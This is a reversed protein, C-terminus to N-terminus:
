TTEPYLIQRVGIACATGIFIAPASVFLALLLGGFILSRVMGQNEILDNLSKLYSNIERFFYLGFIAGVVLGGYFAHTFLLVIGIIMCVYAIIDRTHTSAYKYADKIDEDAKGKLEEYKEELKNKDKDEPNAM